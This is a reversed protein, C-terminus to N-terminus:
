RGLIDDLQQDINLEADALNAVVKAGAQIGMLIIQRNTFENGKGNKHLQKAEEIAQWMLVGAREFLQTCDPEYEIDDM